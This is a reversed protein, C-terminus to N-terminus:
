SRLYLFDDLLFVLLLLLEAGGDAGVLQDEAHHVDEGCEVICEDVHGVEGAAFGVAPDGAAHLDGRIFFFAGRVCGHEGGLLDGDLQLFDADVCHVDLESGASSDLGLAGAGACLVGDPRERPRVLDLDSSDFVDGRHRAVGGPLVATSSTSSELSKCFLPGFYYNVPM